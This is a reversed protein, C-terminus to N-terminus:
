RLQFVSLGHGIRSLCFRPSPTFPRLLQFCWLGWGLGCDYCINMLTLMLSAPDKQFARPTSYNNTKYKSQVTSKLESQCEVTDPSAWLSRHYFGMLHISLYIELEIKLLLIISRKELDSPVIDDWLFRSMMIGTCRLCGSLCYLKGVFIKKEELLCACLQHKHARSASWQEIAASNDGLGSSSTQYMLSPPSGCLVIVHSGWLISWFQSTQKPKTGITAGGWVGGARVRRQGKKGKQGDTHWWQANTQQCSLKASKCQRLFALFYSGTRVQSWFLCSPM